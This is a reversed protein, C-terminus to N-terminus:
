VLNIIAGLTISADATILIHITKADNWHKMIMIHQDNAPLVIFNIEDNTKSVEGHLFYECAAVKFYINM